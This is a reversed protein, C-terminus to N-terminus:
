NDDTKKEVDQKKQESANKPEKIIDDP